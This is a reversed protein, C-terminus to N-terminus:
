ASAAMPNMNYSYTANDKVGRKSRLSPISFAQEDNVTVAENM